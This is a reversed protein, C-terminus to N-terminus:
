RIFSKPIVDIYEGGDPLKFAVKVKNKGVNEIVREIVGTNKGEITEAFKLRSKESESVPILLYRPRIIVSGDKAMLNYMNGSKSDIKYMDKSVRNRRKELPKKPLIYRVFTGIELEFGKTKL